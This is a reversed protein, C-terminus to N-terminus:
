SGGVLRELTWEAFSESFLGKNKSICYSYIEEISKLMRRSPIKIILTSHNKVYFEVIKLLLDPNEFTEYKVLSPSSFDLNPADTKELLDDVSCELVKSIAVLTEASPKKSQGTLINRVASMKLGALRELKGSSLNKEFMRRKIQNILHTDM